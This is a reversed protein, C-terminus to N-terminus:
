ESAREGQTEKHRLLRTSQLQARASNVRSLDYARLFRTRDGFLTMIVPTVGARNVGTEM